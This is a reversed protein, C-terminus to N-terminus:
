KLDLIKLTDEARVVENWKEVRWKMEKNCLGEQVRSATTLILLFLAEKQIIIFGQLFPPFLEYVVLSYSVPILM